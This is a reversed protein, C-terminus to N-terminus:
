PFEDEELLPEVHEGLPRRDPRVVCALPEPGSDLSLILPSGARYAVREFPALSSGLELKRCHRRKMGATPANQHCHV